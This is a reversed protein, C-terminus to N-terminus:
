KQGIYYCFYTKPMRIVNKYGENILESSSDNRCYGKILGFPHLTYNFDGKILFGSLIYLIYHVDIFPFKNSFFKHNIYFKKHSSYIILGGKKLVRYVEKLVKLRDTYDITNYGLYVIDFSNNKFDLETADMVKLKIHKHLRKAKEILKPANDIGIVNYGLKNIESTVRGIGCGIDLIDKGKFYTKIIDLECDSVKDNLNICKNFNNM